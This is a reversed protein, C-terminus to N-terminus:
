GLQPLAQATLLLGVAVIVLASVTPLAAAARPPVPLRSLASSASVVALGLATLTAALGASFAVILVLGLAIQHQAVAGLLVVLATPCPILGASAGMAVLGRGGLREPPEHTHAHAHAHGHAHQRHGHAHGRRRLRSRLVAGGVGVVLLGSVLNLWPYLDETLVYQSLALAVVGLLVVGATHTVTVTAGLLAAHRATGRTGVLYAAVMAKGHGPSLAHVAGWGFAALLLLVLVGKGAAAQDFLRTFGGSRGAAGARTARTGDAATLTGSGPHVAFRASRLAAPSQLLDAPYRRLGHTPDAAPASSRVATGRGPRALVSRWGVRGPFTGDRVTVQRPSSVAASLPLELRTTRLGGQGMPWTLAPRGAPRLAIRRGDVSVLLRRAVEARKRALITAATLGREQFTPIEAQDLLYRVDVRDASLSVVTLHNVSFNGLPHAGAAAPVGLLAAAAAAAVAARWVCRRM